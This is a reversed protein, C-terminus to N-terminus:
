ERGAPSTLSRCTVTKSELPGVVFRGCTAVHPTSHALRLSRWGSGGGSRKRSGRSRGRPRFRACSRRTCGLVADRGADTGRRLFPSLDMIQGTRRLEWPPKWGAFHTFDPLSVGAPAQGVEIEVSHSVGAARMRSDRQSDNGSPQLNCNDGCRRDFIISARCLPQPGSVAPRTGSSCNRKKQGRDETRQGRDETRQGRDETRQGRDETKERRDERKQRREERRREGSHGGHIRDQRRTCAKM